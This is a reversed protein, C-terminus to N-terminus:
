EKLKNWMKELAEIEKMEAKLKPLRVKIEWWLNFYIDELIKELDSTYLDNLAIKDVFAGDSKRYCIPFKKIVTGYEQLEENWVDRKVFASVYVYKRTVATYPRFDGLTPCGKREKVYAESFRFTKGGVLSMIKKLIEIREM